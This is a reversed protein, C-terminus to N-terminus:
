KTKKGYLTRKKRRRLKSVSPEISGVIKTKMKKETISM